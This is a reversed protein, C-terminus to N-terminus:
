QNSVSPSGGKSKIRIAFGKNANSPSVQEDLDNIVQNSSNGFNDQTNSDVLNIKFGNASATFGDPENPQQLQQARMKSM